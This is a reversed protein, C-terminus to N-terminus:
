RGKKDNGSSAFSLKLQMQLSELLAYPTGSNFEHLYHDSKNGFSKFNPTKTPSTQPATYFYAVHLKIAPFLGDRPRALPGEPGGGPEATLSLRIKGLPLPPAACIERAVSATASVTNVQTAPLAVRRAWVQQRTGRARLDRAKLGYLSGATLVIVCM